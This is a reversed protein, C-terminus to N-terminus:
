FFFLIPMSESLKYPCAERNASPDELVLSPKYVLRKGWEGSPVNGRMGTPMSTASHVYEVYEPPEKRKRPSIEVCVNPTTHSTDTGPRPHSQRYLQM